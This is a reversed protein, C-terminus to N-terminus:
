DRLARRYVDVLETVRETLNYNEAVWSRGAEGLQRARQPDRILGLMAKALAAADGPPVLLKM